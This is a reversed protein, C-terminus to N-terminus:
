TQQANYVQPYESGTIHRMRQFAAGLAMYTWFQANPVAERFMPDTLGDVLYALLGVLTALAVARLLPIPHGKLTKWCQRMAAAIAGFFFVFGLLGIEAATYLFINHVPLETQAPVHQSAVKPHDLADIYNGPGAGLLFNHRWIHLATRNLEFRSAMIEPPAEFVRRYLHSYAQPYLCSAGLVVLLMIGVIRKQKWVFAIVGSAVLAAVAFGLWGSRSFTIVLGVLGLVLVLGYLLRARLTEGVCALMAMPVPLLMAYYLGLTHSDNTTGAARWEDEIGPVAYQVGFNPSHINGKINGINVYGTIREFFAIASELVIAMLFLAVIGKLHRREIKRSLFFYMLMHKVTYIVDFTGLVKNPALSLSLLKVGLLCGVLVDIGKLKPLSEVRAVFIQVFWVAYAVLLLLEALGLSVGRVPVVVEQVFLWKGFIAFPIHLVLAYVLFDVLRHIFMMAFALFMLGGALALGYRFDMNMIKMPIVAFLAGAMVVGIYKVSSRMSSLSTFPIM